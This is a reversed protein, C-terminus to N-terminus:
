EKVQYDGVIDKFHATDIVNESLYNILNLVFDKSESIREIKEELVTGNINESIYIGYAIKNEVKSELIAYRITKNKMSSLNVEKIIQM